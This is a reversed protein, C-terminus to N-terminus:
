KPTLAPRVFSFTVSLCFGSSSLSPATLTDITLPSLWHLPGSAPIPPQSYSFGPSGTYSSPLSSLDLTPPLPHFNQLARRCMAKVPNLHSSHLTELLPPWPRAKLPTLEQPRHALMTPPLKRVKIHGQFRARKWLSSGLLSRLRHPHAQSAGPGEEQACLTHNRSDM